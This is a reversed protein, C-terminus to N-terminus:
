LSSKILDSLKDPGIDLFISGYINAATDVRDDNAGAKFYGQNEDVDVWFTEMVKAEVKKAKERYERAEEHKGLKRGMYTM